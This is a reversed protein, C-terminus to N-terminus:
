TGLRIVPAAVGSRNLVLDVTGDISWGVDGLYTAGASAGIELASRGGLSLCHTYGGALPVAPTAGGAPTAAPGLGATLRLSDAAASQLLVGQVLGTIAVVLAVKGM